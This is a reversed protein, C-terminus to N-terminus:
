ETGRKNTRKVIRVFILIIALIPILPWIVFCAIIVFTEQFPRLGRPVEPVVMGIVFPFALVYFAMALEMM